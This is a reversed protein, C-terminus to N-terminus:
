QRYLIQERTTKCVIFLGYSDIAHALLYWIYKAIHKIKLQVKRINSYKASFFASNALFFSQIANKKFFM